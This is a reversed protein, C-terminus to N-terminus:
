ENENKELENFNNYYNEISLTQKLNKFYKDIYLCWISM